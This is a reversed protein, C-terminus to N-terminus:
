CWGFHSIRIGLSFDADACPLYHAIVKKAMIIEGKAMYNLPQKVLAILSSKLFILDLRLYFIEFGM